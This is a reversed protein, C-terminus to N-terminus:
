SFLAVSAVPGRSGIGVGPVFRYEERQLYEVCPVLGLDIHGGHLLDACVSPLDYRVDWRPERDLAWTLPRANLYSVAGLRITAMHPDSPLISAATASSRLSVLRRSIGACRKFRRVAGATQLNM